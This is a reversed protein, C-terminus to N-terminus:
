HAPPPPLWMSVSPEPRGGASLIIEYNLTYMSRLLDVTIRAATV